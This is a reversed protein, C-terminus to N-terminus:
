NLRHALGLTIAHGTDLIDSISGAWLHYQYELVLDDTEGLQLRLGAVPGWLIGSASDSESLDVETGPAPIGDVVVAATGSLDVDATAWLAQVGLYPVLPKEPSFHWRLRGGVGYVVVDVDAEYVQLAEPIEPDIVLSATESGDMWSGFGVLSLQLNDSVFRGIGGSVLWGDLDAGTAGELISDQDDGQDAGSEMALGGVIELEAEGKKVDGSATSALVLSVISLLILGHRTM